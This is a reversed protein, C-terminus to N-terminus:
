LDVLRFGFDSRKFLGRELRYKKWGSNRQLNYSIFNKIFGVTLLTHYQDDVKFVEISKTEEDFNFSSISGKMSHAIGGSIDEVKTTKMDFTANIGSYQYQYTSNYTPSIKQQVLNEIFYTLLLKLPFEESRLLFLITKGSSNGNNIGEM